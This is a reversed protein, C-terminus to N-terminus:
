NPEAWGRNGVRVGSARYADAEEKVGEVEPGIVFADANLEIAAREMVERNPKGTEENFYNNVVHPWLRELSDVINTPWGRAEIQARNPGGHHVTSNGSEQALEELRPLIADEFTRGAEKLPKLSFSVFVHSMSKATKNKRKL